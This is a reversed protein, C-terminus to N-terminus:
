LNDILRVSGLRVAGLRRGRWDQVYDVEFGQQELQARAQEPDVASKLIHPFEAARERQDADLRRNRSSMALGDPERVTPCPVIRTNLFFEAVLGQVLQLQQFDKEGFYARHAQALNLLKLVVTLMGDFHGPRHAGELMRSLSDECVRYHYGQPYMQAAGPALVFDATGELLQVDDELTQPYAALDKPDDFQTPNIFVSVLTRANEQQSRRALALHGEHLAGMTPVFGLSDQLDSRFQRWEDLDHFVRM